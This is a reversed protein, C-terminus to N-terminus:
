SYVRFSDVVDGRAMFLKKKDFLLELGYTNVCIIRHATSFLTM